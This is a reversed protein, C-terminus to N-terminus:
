PENKPESLIIFMDHIKAERDLQKLSFHSVSHEESNPDNVLADGNEDLGRVIIYHGADTFEGPGMRLILPHDNELAERMSDESRIVCEIEIGRKEVLRKVVYYDLGKGAYMGSEAADYLVTYPTQDYNGNIYADLMSVVTAGCGSSKATRPRGNCTCVTTTYNYQYLMPIPMGGEPISLSQANLRLDSELTSKTYLKIMRSVSGPQKQLQQVGEDAPALTREPSEASPAPSESPAPTEPAVSISPEPTSESLRAVADCLGGGLASLPLILQLLIAFVLIGPIAYRRKM